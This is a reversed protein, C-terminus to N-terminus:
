WWKTVNGSLFRLKDDVLSWKRDCHVRHAEIQNRLSQMADVYRKQQVELNLLRGGIAIRDHDRNHAFLQEVRFTLIITLPCFGIWFSVSSLVYTIYDTWQMMAAFKIDYKPSIPKLLNVSTVNVVNEPTEAVIDSVFRDRRCDHRSCKERCLQAIQRKRKVTTKDTVFDIRSDRSKDIMTFPPLLNFEKLYMEASCVDFCHHKSEHPTEVPYDICDTEFPAPLLESRFHTYRVFMRENVMNGDKDLNQWHLQFPINISYPKKGNPVFALVTFPERGPFIVSTNLTLVSVFSETYEESLVMPPQVMAFTYCVMNLKFHVSLQLERERGSRKLAVLSMEDADPILYDVLVDEPPAVHEFIVRTTQNLLEAAIRFCFMTQPIQICADLAVTVQSIM